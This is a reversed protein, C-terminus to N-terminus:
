ESPFSTWFFGTDFMQSSESTSYVHCAKRRSKMKQRIDFKIPNINANANSCTSRPIHDSRKSEGESEQQEKAKGTWREKKLMVKSENEHDVIEVELEGHTFAFHEV